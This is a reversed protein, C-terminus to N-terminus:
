AHATPVERSELLARVLPVDTDPWGAVSRATRQIADLGPLAQSPAEGLKELRLEVLRVCERGLYENEIRGAIELLMKIGVHVDEQADLAKISDHRVEWDTDNNLVLGALFTRCSPRAGLRGIVKTAVDDLDDNALTKLLADPIDWDERRGVEKALNGKFYQMFGALQQPTEFRALIHFHNSMVCFGHM